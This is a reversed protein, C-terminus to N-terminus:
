LNIKDKFNKNYRKIFDSKPFSHTQTGYKEVTYVATTAALQGCTKLNYGLLLGKILGARYADGAGTPDSTNAPKAAKVAIKHGGQYIESGQGGKTIVLTEVRTSLGAIKLKLLKAILAIEYDNGILVRAGRIAQRIETASFTPTMQGPDFIYPIHRKQYAAAYELMREKDDPAIIALTIQYKQCLKKITKVVYGAMPKCPYFATIQNDFKDTIIHAASSPSDKLAKIFDVNIKNKLLWARYSSFDFGVVGLIIPKEKLLSLNYAINGATGGFSTKLNNVVLSLNFQHAQRPLSASINDSFAGPFDMIKDFAISGSVAIQPLKDKPM